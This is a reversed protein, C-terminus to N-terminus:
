IIYVTMCNFYATVSNINGQFSHHSREYSRAVLAPKRTNRRSHRPSGSKPPHVEFAREQSDENVILSDETSMHQDRKLYFGKNCSSYDIVTEFGNLSKVEDTENNRWTKHLYLKKIEKVIVLGLHKKTLPIIKQNEMMWKGIVEEERIRPSYEMHKATALRDLPIQQPMM